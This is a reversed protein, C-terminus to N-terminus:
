LWVLEYKIVRINQALSLFVLHGFHVSCCSRTYGNLFTNCACIAAKASLSTAARSSCLPARPEYARSSRVTRRSAQQRRPHPCPAVLSYFKHSVPHRTAAESGALHRWLEEARAVFDAHERHAKRKREEYVWLSELVLLQQPSTFDNGILRVARWYFVISTNRM